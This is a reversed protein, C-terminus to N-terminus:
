KERIKERVTHGDQEAPGNQSQSEGGHKERSRNESLRLEGNRDVRRDRANVLVVRGYGPRFIDDSM